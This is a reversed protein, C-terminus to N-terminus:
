SLAFKEAQGGRQAAEYVAIAAAVDQLAMGTSDFITIEQPLTRGPKKGAVVEGLEAHVDERQRVGAAIAHHLDGMVACQDTIDTVLKAQALLEPELEQKHENDAGVAAIFMGEPVDDKGLFWKQATTCTVCVDCRASVTRFDAVATVEIKLERSM